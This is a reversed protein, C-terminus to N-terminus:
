SNQDPSLDVSLHNKELYDSLYKIVIRCVNIYSYVICSHIHQIHFYLFLFTLFFSLLFALSFSLSLKRINLTTIKIINRSLIQKLHDLNNKKM